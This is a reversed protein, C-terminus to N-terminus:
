LQIQQMIEDIIQSGVRFISVFYLQGSFSHCSQDSADCYEHAIDCDHDTECELFITTHSNFM